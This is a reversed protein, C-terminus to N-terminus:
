PRATLELYRNLDRRFQDSVRRREMRMARLASQGEAVSQEFEVIQGALKDPVKTMNEARKRLDALATENQSVSKEGSAIRSDLISLQEDRRMILQEQTAYTSLLFSDYRAREAEKRRLEEAAAAAQREAELEEASKPRNRQDIVVGRENLEQAQQQAYKPPIRDGYHVRGEEDVWRYTKGAAPLSMSLVCFLILLRM